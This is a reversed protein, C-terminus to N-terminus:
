RNISNDLSLLARMLGRTLGRIYVLVSVSRVIFAKEWCIMIPKCSVRFKNMLVREHKSKWTARKWSNLVKNGQSYVYGFITLFISWGFACLLALLVFIGVQLPELSNRIAILMYCSFIFLLTLMAQSPFLTKGVCVNFKNHFIHNARYATMLNSPERLSAVSLYWKRGLKFERTVLPVIIAGYLAAAILIVAYHWFYLFISYIHISTCLVIWINSTPFIYGFQSPLTPFLIYSSSLALWFM